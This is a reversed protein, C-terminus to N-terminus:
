EGRGEPLKLGKKQVMWDFLAKNWRADSLADHAPGTGEIVPKSVGLRWMEQKLDRCFMPFTEPLGVMSGFLQCFVVWDYDAFYAWFHPRVDMGLFKLVAPGIESHPLVTAGNRRLHPVVNKKLWDSLSSLDVDANEVYLERGDEAVIGLSILQIPHQHGREYFETDLFYRM